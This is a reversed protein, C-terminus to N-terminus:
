RTATSSWSTPWSGSRWSARTPKTSVSRQPRRRTGPWRATAADVASRPVSCCASSTLRNVATAMTFLPDVPTVPCDSHLAWRVGADAVSRIPDIRPAREPGLFRDRHRDGWYYVHNVFLSTAVGLRRMRAIQDDRVTQSHELRHRHDRLPASVIAHEIADLSHDIAQDGNTHIAVQTGDRHADTVLDHLSEPDIVMQGCEDSRDFYPMSLCATHLQISGDSILKIGGVRLWDGDPM